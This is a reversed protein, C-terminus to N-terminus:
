MAIPVGCIYLKKMLMVSNQLYKVVFCAFIGDFHRWNM